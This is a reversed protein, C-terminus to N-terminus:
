SRKTLSFNFGLDYPTNKYTFTGDATGTIAAGDRKYDGKVKVNFGNGTVHVDFAGTATAHADGVFSVSENPYSHGEVELSDVYLRGSLDGNSPNYKTLILKFQGTATVGDFTSGSTLDGAFTGLIPTITDPQFVILDPAIAPASTFMSASAFTPSHAAFPSGGFLATPAIAATTAGCLMRRGELTELFM